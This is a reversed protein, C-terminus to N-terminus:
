WPGYHLKGHKKVAKLMAKYAEEKSYRKMKKPQFLEYFVEVPYGKGMHKGGHHAVMTQWDFVMGGKEVWAHKYSHPPISFPDSVTGHVLISEGSEDAKIQQYAWDYCHGAGRPNEEPEENDEDKDFGYEVVEIIDNINRGYFTKYTKPHEIYFDDESGYVRIINTADPGWFIAQYEEDGYHYVRVYPAQFLITARGYKGYRFNHPEYAFNYGHSYKKRSHTTYSLEGINETGIRFGYANINDASEEDTNHVLWSREKEAGIFDCVSWPPLRIIDNDSIYRIIEDTKREIYPFVSAVVERPLDWPDQLYGDDEIEKRMKELNSLVSPNDANDEIANEIAESVVEHQPDISILDIVRQTPDKFTEFYNVLYQIYDEKNRRLRTKDLVDITLKRSEADRIYRRIQENSVNKSSKKM